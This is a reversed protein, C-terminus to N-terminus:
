SHKALGSCTKGMKCAATKTAVTNAWTLCLSAISQMVYLSRFWALFVKTIIFYLPLRIHKGDLAGVIHPLNWWDEFQLSIALWDEQSSTNVYKAVLADYIARYTEPIIKSITHRGIHYQLSLLNSIGTAFHRLTLSLRQEDLPIPQKHNTSLKTIHPAVLSLLHEKRDPTMRTYRFYMERDGEALERAINSSGEDRKKM